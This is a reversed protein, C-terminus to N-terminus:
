WPSRWDSNSKSTEKQDATWCTGHHHHLVFMWPFINGPLIRLQLPRGLQPTAQRPERVFHFFCRSCVDGAQRPNTQWHESPGTALSTQLERLQSQPQNSVDHLRISNKWQDHKANTFGKQPLGCDWETQNQHPTESRGVFYTRVIERMWVCYALFFSVHFSMDVLCGTQGSCQKHKAAEKIKEKKLCETRLTWGATRGLIRHRSAIRHGPSKPIARLRWLLSLYIGGHWFSGESLASLGVTQSPLHHFIISSLCFPSPMWPFVVM